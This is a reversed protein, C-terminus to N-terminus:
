FFIQWYLTMELSLFSPTAMIGFSNDEKNKRSNIKSKLIKNSRKFPGTFGLNHIGGDTQRILSRESVTHSVELKKM